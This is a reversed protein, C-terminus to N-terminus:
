RKTENMLMKSYAGDGFEAGIYSARIGEAQEKESRSSAINKAEEYQAKFLPALKEKRQSPPVCSLKYGSPGMRALRAEVNRKFRRMKRVDSNPNDNPSTEYGALYFEMLRHREWYLPNINWSLEPLHFKGNKDTQTIEFAYCVTRSDVIGPGGSTWSAMAFVGELPKSTEEDIVQGAGAAVSFLQAGGLLVAAIGIQKKFRAIKEILRSDFKM